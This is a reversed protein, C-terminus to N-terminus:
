WYGRYFVVLVARNGRLMSSLRLANGDADSLTFDPAAQGLHLAQSGPPLQRTLFFISFCFFATLLVSLVGVITGSTRGRTQRYSQLTASGVLLLGGFMLLLNVWPFDRTFEFRVFIPIYSVLGAVIAAFGGWLRWNRSAKETM